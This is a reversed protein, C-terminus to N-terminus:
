AYADNMYKRPLPRAMVRVRFRDLRVKRFGPENRNAAIAIVAMASIALMPVAGAYAATVRIVMVGSVSVNGLCSTSVVEAAFFTVRVLGFLEASNILVTVGDAPSKAMELSPHLPTDSAGLALQTTLTVNVGLWVPVRVPVRVIVSPAALLGCVTFRVPVPM